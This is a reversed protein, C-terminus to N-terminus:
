GIQQTYEYIKNTFRCIMINNEKTSLNFEPDGTHQAHTRGSAEM